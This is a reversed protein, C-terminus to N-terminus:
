LRLAKLKELCEQASEDTSNMEGLVRFGTSGFTSKMLSGVTLLEGSFQARLFEKFVDDTTAYIEPFSQQLEECIYQLTKRVGRYSYKRLEFEKNDTFIDMVEDLEVGRGEQSLPKFVNTKSEIKRLTSIVREKEFVLCPIDLMERM